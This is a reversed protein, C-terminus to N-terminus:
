IMNLHIMCVNADIKKTDVWTDSDPFLKVDGDYYAILFPNVNEIRSAYRQRIVVESYDITIGGGM